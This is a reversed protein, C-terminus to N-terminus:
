WDYQAYNKGRLIEALFARNGSFLRLAAVRVFDPTNVRKRAIQIM